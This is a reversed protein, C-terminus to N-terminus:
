IENSRAATAGAALRRFCVWLTGKGDPGRVMRLDLLEPFRLVYKALAEWHLAALEEGGAAEVPYLDDVMLGALGRAPAARRPGDWLWGFFAVLPVAADFGNGEAKGPNSSLPSVLESSSSWVQLFANMRPLLTRQVYLPALPLIHPGPGFAWVDKMAVINEV